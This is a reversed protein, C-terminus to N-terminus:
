SEEEDAPQLYADILARFAEARQTEQSRFQEEVTFQVPKM